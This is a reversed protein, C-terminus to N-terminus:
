SYPFQEDYDQKNLENFLKVAM